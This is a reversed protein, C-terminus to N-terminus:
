LFTDNTRMIRFNVLGSVIDSAHDYRGLRNRFKTGMIGFKKIRSVTHEVIVRLKSHKRNYRKEEDSLESKRKKRVPLVYKVTPFDNQVGMYGLDLVNEVQLPITPHKNKFIEYDHIRGREHGTKHLIVGESNVMYQTKVTHKKKKGSYYSKRRRKNKPRPIEQETSDIFAKFGPFCEEVEDLTRLRRRRGMRKYLKKPLPVCWKVLPEIISIDRYVNSQDLDFLFGSLTYTIYLRYYVLLMLFREKVKLKFPRGAGVGRQRRRKSLRKREYENCRSEMNACIIDFEIIELGTFSRFLM